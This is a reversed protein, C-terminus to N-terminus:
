GRSRRYLLRGLVAGLATGFGPLLFTGIAAGAVAGGGARGAAKVASAALEVARRDSARVGSDLLRRMEEVEEQPIERTFGEISSRSEVLDRIAGFERRGLLLLLPTTELATALDTVTSLRPDGEGAELQNVTARSVGSLAALREQTVKRALRAVFLNRGLTAAVTRRQAMLEPREDMTM